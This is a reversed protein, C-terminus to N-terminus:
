LAEFYRYLSAAPSRETLTAGPKASFRKAHGAPARRIRRAEGFLAVSHSQYRPAGVFPAAAPMALATPILKVSLLNLVPM